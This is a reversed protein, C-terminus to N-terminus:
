PAQGLQGVLRLDVGAVGAAREAARPESALLGRRDAHLAQAVLREPDAVQLLEDRVGGRDRRRPRRRDLAYDRQVAPREEGRPRRELPEVRRLPLQEINAVSVSVGGAVRRARHVHREVAGRDARLGGEDEVVVLRDRDV